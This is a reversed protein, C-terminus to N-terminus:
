GKVLDLRGALIQKGQEWDKREKSIIQQTEIWKGMTIRTEELTPAAAPASQPPTQAANPNSDQKADQDASMGGATLVCLLASIVAGIVVRQRTLGSAHGNFRLRDGRFHKDTNMSVGEM